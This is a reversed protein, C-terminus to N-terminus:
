DWFGPRLHALFGPCSEDDDDETVSEISSPGFYPDSPTMIEAEIRENRGRIYGRQEAENILRDIDPTVDVPPSSLPSLPFPSSSPTDSPAPSSVAISEDPEVSEDSPVVADPIEPIIELTEM